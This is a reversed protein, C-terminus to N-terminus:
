FKKYYELNVNTSVTKEVFSNIEKEFNQLM